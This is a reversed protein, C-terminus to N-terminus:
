ASSRFYARCPKTDHMEPRLNFHIIDGFRGTHSFLPGLRFDATKNARENGFQCGISIVCGGAVGPEDLVKPKMRKCKQFKAERKLVLEVQRLDLWGCYLQNPRRPLNFIQDDIKQLSAVVFIAFTM